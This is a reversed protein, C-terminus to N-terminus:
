PAIKELEAEVMIRVLNEFTTGPLWGLRDKAKQPNGVLLDVEAPRMYRPDQVIYNQAQLGVVEFALEVFRQVTHTKGTALVYDDPRDQQLM